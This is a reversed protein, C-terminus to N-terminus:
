GANNTDPDQQDPHTQTRVEELRSRAGELWAECRRALAEGREWLALSEELGAGGAELREVTQILETRAQEYSMTDVDSVDASSFGEVAPQPQQETM